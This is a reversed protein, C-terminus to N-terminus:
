FFHKMGGRIDNIDGGIGGQIYLETTSRSMEFLFHEVYPFHIYDNEPGMKQTNGFELNETGKSNRQLYTYTILYM